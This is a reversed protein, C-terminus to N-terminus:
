DYLLFDKEEALFKLFQLDLPSDINIFDYDVELGFTKKAIINKEKLLAEKKIIYIGGTLCYCEPLLHRSIESTTNSIFSTILNNKDISKLKYPHPDAIKSITTGADFTTNNLQQVIKLIDSIRRTPTTPQLLIVHSFKDELNQILNLAVDATKAKDTALYKPRLGISNVGLSKAISEYETSDTSIYVDAPLPIKKAFSIAHEILTQGKIKQINKDKIGKSGSRAPIIILFRTKNEEM